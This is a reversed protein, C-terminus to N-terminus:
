RDMHLYIDFLHVVGQSDREDDKDWIEEGLEDQGHTAQTREKINFM